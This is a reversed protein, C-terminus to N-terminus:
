NEELLRDLYALAWGSSALARELLRDVAEQSLQGEYDAENRAARLLRVQIELEPDIQRLLTSIVQHERALRIRSHGLHSECYARAELYVAYYLRGIRSRVYAEGPFEALTEAVALFERGRM